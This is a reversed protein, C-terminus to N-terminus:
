KRIYRYAFRANPAADGQDMWRLPNGDLPSNDAWKFDITFHKGKIGLQAKPVALELENGSTRYGIRATQQWSKNASYRCLVTSDNDAVEKNVVFQFGEWGAEKAGELHIFLHMWNDSLYSTLPQETRVYFYLNRKDSTVRAEVIDNRGSNNEYKDIRGWGPHNRHFTDGEDDKYVATVPKWEDFRGDISITNGSKHVPPHDAGKFRRVYDVLQYYYHDQTIGIAPEIDRSYEANYQDVFYTSGKGIHRGLFDTSKDVIFRMAVWENWGTVFVFRPDVELARKWQEQFYLGKDTSLTDPQRGDHFSRGINSVPHQAVAVSIEEPEDKSSHWGYAQPTNDLWPWKDKGDAFWQQGKSWAWSQRVTFFSGIETNVAEPPCLLLPKGEWRFWLDSFLGKKYIQEYLRKVTKEPASNVIFAIAPTSLGEQRMQRYTGAIKSVQQLYIVANTVDLIIVDIGADSLMQAHKRIIWEDDALYYGFYPEGWHHFAGPPGYEPSDPHEKLIKTIDYPSRMNLSTKPLVGEDPASAPKDYGHAGQWVFYFIGVYRDKRAAKYKEPRIARGLGDTAVWTDANSSSALQPTSLASQAAAAHGAIVMATMLIFRNM